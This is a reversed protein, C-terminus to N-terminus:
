KGKRIVAYSLVLDITRLEELHNEIYIYIYIYHNERYINVGYPRKLNLLRKFLVTSKFHQMLKQQVATHSKSVYICVYFNKKM